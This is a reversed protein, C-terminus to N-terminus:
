SPPHICHLAIKQDELLALSTPMKLPVCHICLPLKVCGNYWNPYTVVVGEGAHGCNVCELRIPQKPRFQRDIRDFGM